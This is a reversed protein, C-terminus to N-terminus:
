FNMEVNVSDIEAGEEDLNYAQRELAIRKARVETLNKLTAAKESVTLDCEESFIDGQYTAFHLKTPDTGLELLFKNELEILCRIEKRHRFIVQSGAEAANEIIEDDSLNDQNATRVETRVLKEQIEKKVKGALNKKWKKIKAHKRIAAETVTKKWTQSNKHDQEYQECIQYNSLTGLRYLPKISDWDILKRPM